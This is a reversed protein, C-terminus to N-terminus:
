DAYFTMSEVLMNMEARLGPSPTGTSAVVLYYNRGEPPNVVWLTDMLSPSSHSLLCSWGDRDQVTCYRQEDCASPEVGSVDRWATVIRQGHMGDITIDVADSFARTRQGNADYPQGAVFAVFDDASEPGHTERLDADEIQWDCTSLPLAYYDGPLVVVTVRDGDGLDKTLSGTDPAFWGADPITVTVRDEGHQEGVPTVLHAGLPLGADASAAPGFEITGDVPDLWDGGALHADREFTLQADLYALCTASRDPVPEFLTVDVPSGREFAIGAWSGRVAYTSTSDTVIGGILVLLAEDTRACQLDVTFRGGGDRPAGGVQATMRGTVSSGQRTAEIEVSVGVPMAFSGRALLTPGPSPTAGPGLLGLGPLLNYGVVAVVLATAATTTIVVRNMHFGRWATWWTRRQPTADVEDLTRLLVREANEHADERLWSLVLRTQPDRETTM